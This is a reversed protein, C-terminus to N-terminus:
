VKWNLEKVVRKIQSILFNECEKKRTVELYVRTLNKIIRRKLKLSLYTNILYDDFDTLRIKGDKDILMGGTNYDIPYIKNKVLILFFDYFKEIIKQNKQFDELYYELTEGCDETVIISIRNFFSERKIKKYKLDVYPLGIKELKKIVKDYHVARDDRLGFAVRIKRKGYPIYKKIYFIKDGVKEKYVFTKNKHNSICEGFNGSEELYKDFFGWNM